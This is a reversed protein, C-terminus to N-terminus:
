SELELFVVQGNSGNVLHKYVQELEDRVPQELRTDTMAAIVDAMYPKLDYGCHFASILLAAKNVTNQEGMQAALQTIHM